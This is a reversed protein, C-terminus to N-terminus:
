NARMGKVRSFHSSKVKKLDGKRGDPLVVERPLMSSRLQNEDVELTFLNANPRSLLDSLKYGVHPFTFATAVPCQFVGAAMEAAPLFDIDASIVV